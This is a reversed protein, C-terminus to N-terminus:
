GNCVEITIARSDDFIRGHVGGAYAKHIGESDLFSTILTPRCIAWRKLILKRNLAQADRGIYSETPEQGADDLVLISAQMALDFTSPGNATRESTDVAHHWRARRATSLMRPELDLAGASAGAELGADLVHAMVRAAFVSKGNRSSKNQVARDFVYAILLDGGLMRFAARHAAARPSLEEGNVRIRQCRAGFAEEDFDLISRAEEPVSARAPDLALQVSRRWDAAACAVCMTGDPLEAGCRGCPGTPAPPAVFADMAQPLPKERRPEDRKPPPKPLPGRQAIQEDMWSEIKARLGADETRRLERAADRVDDPLAAAGRDPPRM